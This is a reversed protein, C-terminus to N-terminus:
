IQHHLSTWLPHHHRSLPRDTLRVVTLIIGPLYNDSQLSNKLILRLARGTKICSLHGSIGTSANEYLFHIMNSYKQWWSWWDIKVKVLLIVKRWDGVLVSYKYINKISLIWDPLLFLSLCHSSIRHTAIVLFHNLIRIQERIYRHWLKNFCYGSGVFFSVLLMLLASNQNVTRRTHIVPICNERM